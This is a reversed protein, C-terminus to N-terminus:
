AAGCQAEAEVPRKRTKLLDAFGEDALEQFTSGSGHMVAEVAERTEDGFQACNGVRMITDRNLPVKRPSVNRKGLEQWRIAMAPRAHHRRLLLSFPCVPQRNMKDIVHRFAGTLRDVAMEGSRKGRPAVVPRSLPTPHAAKEQCPVVMGVHGVRASQADDAAM